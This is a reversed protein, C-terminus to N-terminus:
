SGVVVTHTTTTTELTKVFKFAGREGFTRSLIYTKQNMEDWISIWDNAEKLFAQQRGALIHAVERHNFKLLTMPKSAVSGGHDESDYFVGHRDVNFFHIVALAAAPSTACSVIGMRIQNGTEMFESICNDMCEGVNRGKKPRNEMQSMRNETISFNRRAYHHIVEDAVASGETHKPSIIAKFLANKDAFSNNEAITSCARAFCGAVEPALTISPM